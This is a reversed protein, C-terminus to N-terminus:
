AFMGVWLVGILVLCGLVYLIVHCNIEDLPDVSRPDYKRYLLASTIFSRRNHVAVSLEQRLWAYM